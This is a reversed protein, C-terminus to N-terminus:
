GAPDLGLVEVAYKGDSLLIEYEMELVDNRVYVVRPDKSRYGFKKLNDEGVTEDANPIVEDKDDTLVNDGAFYTLTAQNYAKEGTMYEVNSLVYPAEETRNREETVVDADTPDFVNKTVPAKMEGRVEVPAGQYQRLINAADVPILREVAEEPTELGEKKYLTAYFQKAEGIEKDSQDAYKTELQRKAFLYGAVSGAALSVITASGVAIALKM